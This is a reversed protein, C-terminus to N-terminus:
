RVVCIRLSKQRKLLQLLIKRRLTIEVHEGSDRGIEESDGIKAHLTYSDVTEAATSEYKNVTATPSPM